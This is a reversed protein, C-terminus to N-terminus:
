QTERMWQAVALAAAEIDLGFEERFQMLVDYLLPMDLFRQGLYKRMEPTLLSDTM